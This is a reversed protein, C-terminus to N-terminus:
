RGIPTRVRRMNVRLHPTAAAFRHRRLARLPVLISDCWRNSAEPIVVPLKLSFIKTQTKSRPIFDAFTMAADIPEYGWLSVPTKTCHPMLSTFAAIEFILAM